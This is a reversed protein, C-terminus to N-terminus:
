EGARSYHGGCPRVRRRVSHRWHHKRGDPSDRRGCPGTGAQRDSAAPRISQGASNGAVLSGRQRRADRRGDCVRVDHGEPLPLSLQVGTAPASSFNGQTRNTYTLAYALEGGPAAPDHDEEVSLSLVSDNDIVGVRTATANNGGDAYAIAEIQQQNSSIGSITILNSIESPMSLTVGRGPALTGVSWEAFEFNACSTASASPCTGGQSLFSTVMASSDQPGRVQLAVNTLPFASRNTVTVQSTGTEGRRVGDLTSEVAVQLPAGAQIRTASTARASEFGSVTTGTLNADSRLIEGSRLLPDVEVVVQQRGSQNGPLTGISWFVSRGVLTGGETAAIFRTGDPM